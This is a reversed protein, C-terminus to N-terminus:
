DRISGPVIRTRWLTRWPSRLLRQRPTDVAGLRALRRRNNRDLLAGPHLELRRQLGSLGAFHGVGMEESRRAPSPDGIGDRRRLGAGFELGLLVRRDAARRQTSRTGLGLGRQAGVAVRGGNAACV